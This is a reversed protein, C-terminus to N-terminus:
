FEFADDQAFLDPAIVVRAGTRLDTVLAAASSTGLQQALLAKRQDREQRPISEPRGSQVSEVRYIAYGGSAM